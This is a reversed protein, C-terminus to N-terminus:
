PILGQIFIVSIFHIFDIKQIVEIGAKAIATKKNDFIPDAITKAENIIQTGAEKKIGSDAVSIKIGELGEAQMDKPYLHWNQKIVGKIHLEYQNASLKKSTPIWQVNLSDQAKAFQLFLLLISVVGTFKTRLIKM